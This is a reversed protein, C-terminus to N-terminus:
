AHEEGDQEGAANLQTRASGIMTEIPILTARTSVGGRFWIPKPARRAGDVRQAAQVWVGSAGSRGAWHTEKFIEALGQHYNAVAIFESGRGTRVLKVGYTQIVQKAEDAPRHQDRGAAVNIWEGLTARGGARFPEVITTLLHTLWREHDASSDDTEALRSADIEDLAELEDTAPLGDSLLLDACALLTGFQDAGRGGHGRAVLAQRYVELLEPWRAWGDILRRRLKRGLEQLKKPELRIGARELQDLELIAMRSRDQGLLPPMLISSFLFCSQAVFTAGHHDASGRLVLGGSAAQRALKVIAQGRRNDEEAELEDVAVPLSAHGLTQWIGAASPDSASLLGGEGLVAKLVDHLTSKGTARDGTIWCVPRWKIAGGLMAAAIWGLLLRADLAKRRWSWSQLLGLLEDGPETTVPELAPAPRPSAAPYVHRGIVGPELPRTLDVPGERPILWIKNGAHVILEGDGGQWAGAGRVHDLADWVGKRSAAHALAAAWAEYRVGSERGHKDIRPWRSWLFEHHRAFLSRIGAQALEKFHLSRLQRSDDLFHFYDGSIGLPIVPSNDPLIFKGLAAPRKRARARRKQEAPAAAAAPANEVAQRIGDLPVVNSPAAPETM